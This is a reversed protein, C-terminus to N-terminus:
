WQAGGRLGPCSTTNNLKPSPLFGCSSTPLEPDRVGEGEQSLLAGGGLRARGTQLMLFSISSWCLLLPDCGAAAAAAAATDMHLKPTLCAQPHQAMAPKGCAAVGM